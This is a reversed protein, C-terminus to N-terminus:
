EQDRRSKGVIDTIHIRYVIPIHREQLRSSFDQIFKPTEGDKKAITRQVGEAFRHLQKKATSGELEEFNGQVLVSRWEQISRIDDVQLAVPRHKKMAQIKFGPSSYSLICKEEADHYFTIPNIHPTRGSIYALRGIYNESLLQLCESTTMNKITTSEPERPEM